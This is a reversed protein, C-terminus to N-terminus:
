DEGILRIMELLLAKGDSSWFGGSDPRSSLESRVLDAWSFGGGM